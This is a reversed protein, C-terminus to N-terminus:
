FPGSSYWCSRWRLLPVLGSYLTAVDAFFSFFAPRRCFFLCPTELLLPASGRTRPKLTPAFTGQLLAPCTSIAPHHQASLSDPRQQMASSSARKAAETFRVDLTRAKPFQAEWARQSLVSRSRVPEMVSPTCPLASLAAEKSSVRRPVGM